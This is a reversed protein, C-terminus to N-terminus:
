LSYVKDQELLHVRNGDLRSLQEATEAYVQPKVHFIWVPV